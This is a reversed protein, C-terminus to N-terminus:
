QSSHCLLLVNMGASGLYRRWRSWRWVLPPKQAANWTSRLNLRSLWQCRWCSEAWLLRSVWRRHLSCARSPPTGNGSKKLVGRLAFREIWRSPERVVFVLLDVLLLDSPPPLFECIALFVSVCCGRCLLSVWRVHPCSPSTLVAELLSIKSCLSFAFRM